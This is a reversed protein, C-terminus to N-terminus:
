DYNKKNSSSTIYNSCNSFNNNQNSPTNIQYSTLPNPKKHSSM